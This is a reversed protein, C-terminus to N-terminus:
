SFYFTQLLTRIAQPVLTTPLLLLSFVLALSYDGFSHDRTHSACTLLMPLILVTHNRHPEVFSLAPHEALERSSSVSRCVATISLCTFGM